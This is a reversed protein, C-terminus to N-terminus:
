EDAIYYGTGSWDTGEDYLYVWSGVSTNWGDVNYESLVLDAWTMGEQATFTRDEGQYNLITFTIEKPPVAIPSFHVINENVVHSVNPLTYEESNIFDSYQSDSDFLKLYKM